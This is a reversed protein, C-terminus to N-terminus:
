SRGYAVVQRDRGYTVVTIVRSKYQDPPAAYALAWRVPSNLGDRVYLDLSHATGDREADRAAAAMVARGRHWGNWERGGNVEEPPVGREVLALGANWVAARRELYEREWWISWAALAAVGTMVIRRGWGYPRFSALMVILLSPFVALLYRDYVLHHPRVYYLATLGLTVLGFLLPVVAPGRVLMRWPTAATTVVLLGGSFLAMATAVLLAWQPVLISDPLTRNVPVAQFGRSTLTTALHPLLPNENFVATRVVFGLLLVLLVIAAVWRRPLSLHPVSRDILLGATLPLLLLGLTSLMGALRALVVGILGPGEEAWFALTWALPEERVPGRQSDIHIGLLLAPLFPGLVAALHQPRLAARWGITAVLGGLAALPLAAGLQRVLFAAGALASGAVLWALSPRPGRLALVYCVLAWLQLSLYPVDTMFSYSLFVYLPNFLLLLAGVLARRAGLLERLLVYCGMVGALALVLTSMRLAIHSFGFIQTFLAGWYAQLVISTAAWIPIELQGTELLSKVVSAYVWDDDIPFEGVPPVLIVLVAM